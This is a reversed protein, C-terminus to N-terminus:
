WVYHRHIRGTEFATWRPINKLDLVMWLKELTLPWFNGQIWPKELDLLRNPIRNRDGGFTIWQRRTENAISSLFIWRFRDVNKWDHLLLGVHTSSVESVVSRTLYASRNDIFLTKDLCRKPTGGFQRTGGGWRCRRKRATFFVKCKRSGSQSNPRM